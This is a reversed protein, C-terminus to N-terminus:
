KSARDLLNMKGGYYNQIINKQAIKDLSCIRELARKRDRKSQMWTKFFNCECGECEKVNLINCKGERYAFCSEVIKEEM